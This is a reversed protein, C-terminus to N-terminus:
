FLLLLDRSSLPPLSFSDSTRHRNVAGSSASATAVFDVPNQHEAAAFDFNDELSDALIDAAVVASDPTDEAVAVSAAVAVLASAQNAM